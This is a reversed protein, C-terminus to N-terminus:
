REVIAIITDTTDLKRMSNEYAAHLEPTDLASLLSKHGGPVGKSLWTLHNALTYRQRGEIMISRMGAAELLRRLSARTHLILHQSWLTFEVFKESKLTSILFDNAHPVEIVFKGGPALKEILQKLMGLPNEFHELAHFIFISDFLGPFDAINESCAVGSARLREIYNLQLEVGCVTEAEDKAGILFHGAGCGVDCIKKGAYFKRYDNLRRDADNLREFDPKGKKRYDGTLYEETGVYYDDIYIVKSRDDRWVTLNDRDRTKRAFVQRTELSTLGLSQLTDFIQGM